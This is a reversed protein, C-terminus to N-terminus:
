PQALLRPLRVSEPAVDMEPNASPRRVAKRLTGTADPRVTFSTSGLSVAEREIRGVQSQQLREYLPDLVGAKSRRNERSHMTHLDGFRKPLGRWKCEHEAVEGIATSVQLNNLGVNSRQTPLCVQIQEFQAATIEVCSTDRGM